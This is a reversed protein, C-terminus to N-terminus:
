VYANNSIFFKNFSITSIYPTVHVMGGRPPICYIAIKPLPLFYSKYIKFLNLFRPDLFKNQKHWWSINSFLWKQFKFFFIIKSIQFLFHGYWWM